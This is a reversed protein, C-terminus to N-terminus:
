RRVAKRRAPKYGQRMLKLDGVAAEVDKAPIFGTDSETEWAFGDVEARDRRFGGEVRRVYEKGQLVPVLTM